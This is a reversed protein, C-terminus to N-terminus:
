PNDQLLPENSYTHEIKPQTMLQVWEDASFRKQPGNDVRAIVYELQKPYGIFPESLFRKIEVVKM